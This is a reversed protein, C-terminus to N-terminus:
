LKRLRLLNKRRCIIFNDCIKVGGIQIRDCHEAGIVIVKNIINQQQLVYCDIRDAVAELQPRKM